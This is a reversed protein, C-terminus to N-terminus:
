EHLLVGVESRSRVRLKALIRETHRRVTHPSLELAAAIETNQKGRALLLAVRVEAGTLAYRERLDAETRLRPGVPELVAVVLSETAAGGTSHLLARVTYRSRKTAVERTPGTLAHVGSLREAVQSLADEVVARMADLISQSEPETRLLAAIAPTQHIISGSLDCVVARSGLTDLLRALQRHYHSGAAPVARVSASGSGPNSRRPTFSM